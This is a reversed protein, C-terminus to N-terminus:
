GRRCVISRLEEPSHHGHPPIVCFFAAAPLRKRRIARELTERFPSLEENDTRVRLAATLSAHRRPVLVLDQMMSIYSSTAKDRLARMVAVLEAKNRWRRHL